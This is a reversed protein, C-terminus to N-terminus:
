VIQRDSPLIYARRKLSNAEREALSKGTRLFSELSVPSGQEEETPTTTHTEEAIESMIKMSQKSSSSSSSGNARNRRAQQLLILPYDRTPRMMTSEPELGNELPPPPPFHFPQDSRTTRQEGNFSNGQGGPSLQQKFQRHRASLSTTTNLQPLPPPPSVAAAAKRPHPLPGAAPSQPARYDRREVFQIPEYIGETDDYSHRPPPYKEDEEEEVEVIEVGDSVEENLITRMTTTTRPRTLSQSRRLTSAGSSRRSNVEIAYNDSDCQCTGQGQSQVSKLKDNVSRVSARLDRIQWALEDILRTQDDLRQNQQQIIFLHDDLKRGFTKKLGAVYLVLEDFEDQILRSM